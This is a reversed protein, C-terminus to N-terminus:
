TQGSAGLYPALYQSDWGTKEVGDLTSDSRMRVRFIGSVKEYVISDNKMVIRWGESGGAPIPTRLLTFINFGAPM